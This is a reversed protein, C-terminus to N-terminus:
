LQELPVLVEVRADRKKAGAVLRVIKQKQYREFANKILELSCAEKDEIVKEDYLSEMFWQVTDFFKGLSATEHLNEQNRAITILYVLSAWYCEIQSRLISCYFAIMRSGALSIVVKESARLELVQNDCMQAVVAMFDAYKELSYEIFYEERLLSMLFRTQEHIRSLPVGETANLQSGFSALACGIFAEPLFAHTLTNRYYALMLIKQFEDKASITLEFINKKSKTTIGSLYGIANRVAVASSNENVGGVKYGKKLIYKALENVTSILLEESIGKRHMLLVSSVIATSMIVIGSTMRGIIERGLTKLLTKRFEVGEAARGQSVETSKVSEIINRTMIPECIEVYVRGYNFRLLSSAKIVQLLTEAVKQEGLLEGPLNDSELVKEYNITLPILCVEPVKGYILTDLVINLM